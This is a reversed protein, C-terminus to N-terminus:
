ESSRPKSPFLQPAFTSHSNELINPVRQDEYYIRLLRKICTKYNAVRINTILGNSGM